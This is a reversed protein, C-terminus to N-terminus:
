QTAAFGSPRRVAMSGGASRKGKSQAGITNRLLKWLAENDPHNEAVICEHRIALGDGASLIREARQNMFAISGDQNLIEMGDRARHRLAAFRHGLDLARHLHPTLASM